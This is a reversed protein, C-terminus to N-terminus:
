TYRLSLITKEGAPLRYRVRSMTGRGKLKRLMVSERPDLVIEGEGEAPTEITLMRSGYTGSATLRLPGRATHATLSLSPLDALQPVIEFRRFGPELARIGAISMYLIYLPVVACHSWQSTTDPKEIWFEQLTNNLRVSDMTAWRTRLDTVVAGSRGGKSRFLV